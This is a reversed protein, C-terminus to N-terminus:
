TPAPAAGDLPSNARRRMSQGHRAAIYGPFYGGTIAPTWHITKTVIITNESSEQRAHLISSVALPCPRSLEALSPKPIKNIQIDNRAVQPQM